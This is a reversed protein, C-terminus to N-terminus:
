AEEDCRVMEADCNVCQMTGSCYVWMPGSGCDPCIYYAEEEEERKKKAKRIDTVKEDTM